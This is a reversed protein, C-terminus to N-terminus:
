VNNSADLLKTPTQMDQLLTSGSSSSKEPSRYKTPSPTDPAHQQQQQQNIVLNQIDECVEQLRSKDSLTVKEV